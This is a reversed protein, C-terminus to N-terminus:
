AKKRIIDSAVLRAKNKLVGGLEDLKVKYIWKLTIIMVRDPHPVLKWVELREFKNLEEQMAEIQSSSEEFSPKPNPIGFYPGNDMYAVKIDHDAEEAGPPIVYSPSELLTQSTSPSPADQDVLTLSPTGTSVAPVPAAILTEPTMEHLAPGSSSQESAMATLEHYTVVSCRRNYIWYAKKAPAYGIFIGVDAKVKLKGLVESDNTPYCLAGFLHLYFLDPKTDHLLEYPTEGHRLRILSRNHTYYTTAVAQAMSTEYSISVDEYYSRLTQNVFETGNDTRINRVNVNLRVQIMKLFKIIFEPAEDKSRLFKVWTFRSYDDVIVLICKKGNITEVRMLGCLDM